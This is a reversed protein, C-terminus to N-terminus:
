LSAQKTRQVRPSTLQMTLPHNPTQAQEINHIHQHLPSNVVQQTITSSFSNTSLPDGQQAQWQVPYSPVTTLSLYHNYSTFTTPPLLSVQGTLLLSNTWFHSFQALDCHMYPQLISSHPNSHTAMVAMALISKPGCENSHPIFTQSRCNVWVSNSPYFQTNTWHSLITRVSEKTGTNNMDDAYYFHAVGQVIKRGLAVWHNNNIHLPILINDQLLDPKSQTSQTTAFWQSIDDWGHMILLPLISTRFIELQFYHM